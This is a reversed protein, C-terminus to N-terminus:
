NYGHDTTVEARIQEVEAQHQQILEERELQRQEVEAILRQSETRLTQKENSETEIRRLMEVKNAFPPPFQHVMDAMQEIIEAASARREPNNSVCRLILDM